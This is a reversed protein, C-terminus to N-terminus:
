SKKKFLFLVNWDPRAILLNELMAIMTTNLAHTDSSIFYVDALRPIRHISVRLKVLMTM